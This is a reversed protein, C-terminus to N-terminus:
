VERSSAIRGFTRGFYVGGGVVERVHVFVQFLVKHIRVYERLFIAFTIMSVVMIPLKARRDWDPRRHCAGLLEGFTPGDNKISGLRPRLRFHCLIRLLVSM